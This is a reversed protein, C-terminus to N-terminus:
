KPRHVTFHSADIGLRAIAQQVDRTRSEALRLTRLVGRYTTSTAVADRLQEDTWTRKRAM